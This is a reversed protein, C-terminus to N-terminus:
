CSDLDAQLVVSWEGPLLQAMPLVIARTAGRRGKM